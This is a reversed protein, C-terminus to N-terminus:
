DVHPRDAERLFMLKVYRAYSGMATVSALVFGHRGDLLGLRLFYMRIFTWLGHGIAGALSARRGRAHLARASDTSYRNIKAIAADLDAHTDHLLHGRLRGVGGPVLLKEHVLADSFRAAGRRFLRLVRDPWWGGHRMYRGCFNSLRPMEYAEHVPAALVAAIERALGPTVQEDADISLVWDGTALALVRNKQPGFGPWDATTEVRAGCARALAVTDDTSGSDLVILEDAFSVSRLCAEIHRAADRTIVIVSLRARSSSGTRTAVRPAGGVPARSQSDVAM